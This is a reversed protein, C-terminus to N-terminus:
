TGFQNKRAEAPNYEKAKRLVIFINSIYLVATIAFCLLGLYVLANITLALGLTFSVIFMVFSLFQLNLMKSQYRKTPLFGDKLGSFPQASKTWAILPLTQGLILSSLWGFILLSGYITTLRVALADAKLQYFIIFPLIFVAIILLSVSLLTHAM